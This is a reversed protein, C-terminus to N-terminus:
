VSSWPVHKDRLERWQAGTRMVWLVGDIFRGAAM